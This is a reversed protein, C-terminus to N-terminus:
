RGRRILKEAIVKFDEIVERLSTIEKTLKATESEEPSLPKSGIVNEKGEPFTAIENMSAEMLNMLAGEPISSVGSNHTNSVVESKTKTEEKSSNLKNKKSM